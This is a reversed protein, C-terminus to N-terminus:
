NSFRVVVDQRTDSLYRVDVADLEVPPGFLEVHLRLADPEFGDFVPDAVGFAPVLTREGQRTLVAVALEQALQEDSGEEVTQVSGAATLRFPYSLLPTPV